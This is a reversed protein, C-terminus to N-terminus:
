VWGGEGGELAKINYEGRFLWCVAGGNKEEETKKEKKEGLNKKVWQQQRAWNPQVAIILGDPEIDDGADSDCFRGILYM